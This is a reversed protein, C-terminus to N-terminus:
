LAISSCPLSIGTAGFNVLPREVDTLTMGERWDDASRVNNCDDRSIERGFQVATGLYMQPSASPISQSIDM